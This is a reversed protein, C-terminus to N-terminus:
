PNLLIQAMNSFDEEMVKEPLREWGIFEWKDIAVKKRVEGKIRLGEEKGRYGM